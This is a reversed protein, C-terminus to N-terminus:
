SSYAYKSANVPPNLVNGLSAYVPNDTGIISLKKEIGMPKNRGNMHESLSSSANMGSRRSKSNNVMDRAMRMQRLIEDDVSNQYMCYVYLSLCVMVVMIALGLVLEASSLNSVMNVSDTFMNSLFCEVSNLVDGNSVCRRNM